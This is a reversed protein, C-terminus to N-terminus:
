DISNLWQLADERRVFLKVPYDTPFFGLFFNGATRTFASGCLLAVASTMRIVEPDTSAFKSSNLSPGTLQRMDCLVKQPLLDKNLAKRQELISQAAKLTVKGPPLVVEVLDNELMRVMTSTTSTTSTM